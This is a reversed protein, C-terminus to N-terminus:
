LPLKMDCIDQMENDQPQALVLELVTIVLLVHRVLLQVLPIKSIDTQALLVLYLGLVEFLVLHANEIELLVPQLMLQSLM